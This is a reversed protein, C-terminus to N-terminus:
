EEYRWAVGHMPMLRCQFNKPSSDDKADRNRPLQMAALVLM